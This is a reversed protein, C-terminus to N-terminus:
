AVARRPRSLLGGLLGLVLEVALQFLRQMVVILAALLQARASAAPDSPLATLLIPVLLVGQTVERVGLGGPLFSIMGLVVSLAFVGSLNWVEGISLPVVCRSASWLAAGGFLWCPSMLLTSALIASARLRQGPDIEARGARKLVPNVLRYFVAPHVAVLLLGGALLVGTLLRGHGGASGTLALLAAAAGSVVYVANEVLTAVTTARGSVGLPATRELRMLLLVIKGPVYKGLQSFWYADYLRIVAGAGDIRRLLWYWGTAGTAAVAALAAMSPVSWFWDIVVPERQQQARYEQWAGHLKWGATFLVVALLTIKLGSVLARPEM